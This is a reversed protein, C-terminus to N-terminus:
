LSLGPTPWMACALPLAHVGYQAHAVAASGREVEKTPARKAGTPESIAHTHARLAGVADLISPMGYFVHRRGPKLTEFTNKTRENTYAM